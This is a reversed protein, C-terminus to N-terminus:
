SCREALQYTAPAVRSCSKQVVQRVKAQWHQNRRAKPHGGVARYLQALTATGGIARLAAAVVERWNEGDASAARAFVFLACTPAIPLFQGDIGSSYLRDADNPGYAVLVAPAGANWNGPSGDPKHFTIRGRLALIADAAGWVYKSFWETDLRGLVLATGVGHDALRAMWKSILFRNYPANMWVRGEWRALLGNEPLEIHRAATPWPRPSPAACPDLDFPGLAEIISPPTLWIDSKGVPNQWSGLTM